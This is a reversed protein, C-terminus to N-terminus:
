ATVTPPRRCRGQKQRQRAREMIEMSPPVGTGQFVSPTLIGPKRTSMTPVYSGRITRLMIRVAREGQLRADYHPYRKVIFVADAADSLEHDENAHLDLTVFIPIAGVAKRVRRVLEAEPKPIGTVAMAGHLALYVGDLHGSQMVDDVIGGAYKEFAEGTIWSGSSGGKASRPSLIGVLEVNEYETSRDV